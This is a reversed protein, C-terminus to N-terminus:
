GKNTVDHLACSGQFFAAIDQTSTNLLVERQFLQTVMLTHVKIMSKNVAYSLNCFEFSGIAQKIHDSEAEANHCPLYRGNWIRRIYLSVFLLQDASLPAKMM